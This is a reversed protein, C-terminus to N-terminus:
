PRVPDRQYECRGCSRCELKTVLIPLATDSPLNHNKLGLATTITWRNKDGHGGCPCIFDPNSRNM